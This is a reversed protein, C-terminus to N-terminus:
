FNQLKYPRTMLGPKEGRTWSTVEPADPSKLWM